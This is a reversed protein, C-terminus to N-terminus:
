LDTETGQDIVAATVFSPRAKMAAYYQAVPGGAWWDSFGHVTLRALCATAFCDALSYTSGALFDQNSLTDAMRGVLGRTTAIHSAIGDPDLLLSKFRRNGEIRSSLLEKLDPRTNSLKELLRGRAEVQPVTGDPTRRPGYMLVGYHPAMINTLWGQTSTDGSLDAGAMDQVRNVIRITDTVVEDGVSLTPVVAKPNLAVYWPEFQENTDMIDITRRTFTLGKEVLALRAM